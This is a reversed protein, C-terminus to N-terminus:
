NLKSQFLQSHTKMLTLLKKAFTGDEWKNTTFIFFFHERTLYKLFEENIKSNQLLHFAVVSKEDATLSLKACNIKESIIKPLLEEITFYLPLFATV